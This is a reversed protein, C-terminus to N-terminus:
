PQFKRVASAKRPGTAASFGSASGSYLGPTTPEQQVLANNSYYGGHKHEMGFSFSGHRRTTCPFDPVPPSLWCQSGGPGQQARGRLQLKQQYASMSGALIPASARRGTRGAFALGANNNTYQCHNATSHGTKSYMATSSSCGAQWSAMQHGQSISLM